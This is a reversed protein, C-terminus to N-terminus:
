ENKSVTRLSDIKIQLIKGDNTYPQVIEIAFFLMTSVIQGKSEQNGVKSPLM